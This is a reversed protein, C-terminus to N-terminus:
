GRNMRVYVKRRDPRGAALDAERKEQAVQREWYEILTIVDAASNFQMERGAITYSRVTPKWAKLAAKADALAQEAESRGDTGAATTRPDPQITLQGGDVSHVEGSGEVWSTWTYAGAVWAATTAAAVAVRYAEGETSATIAIPTGGSVRQVLRYKLTWGGAPPYAPVQALFSLTDGATITQQM